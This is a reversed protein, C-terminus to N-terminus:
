PNVKHNVTYITMMRAGCDSIEQVTGGPLAQQIFVLENVREPIFFFASNRDPNIFTPPGTLPDRVDTVPVGGSLYDMSDYVGYFVVPAGFLYGQYTMGLQGLKSGFFSAFRTPRNEYLCNPAYDVFYAKLNLFALGGICVSMMVTRTTAPRWDTVLAAAGDILRDAAIAAFLCVVPFMMIIRYGSDAPGIVLAGGVVVSSWFWGQLLLHRPNWVHLLSYILGLVYLAGSLLDLMPLPSGYGATAPYYNVTLLAQRLLDLMIIGASQGRNKVENALWGSQIVGMQNVRAMFDDPHQYAWLAMPGSIVLLGGVFALLNIRNDTVMKRDVFWLCVLYVLVLPILLRSGMYIYLHFGMMLGSAALRPASRNELGSLLLYLSIVALFADQISTAVIIRSFHVHFHSVALLAAALLAVRVNFFRRGFVYLVPVSLTGSLASMFRLGLANNGFVRIMGAIAFLYLTSQGYVTAMMNHIEGRAISAAIKGVVGEDGSIINPIQGLDAFRIVGAVVTLAVVSFVEARHRQFWDALNLRQPRVFVAAYCVAGAVWLGFVDLFSNEGSKASLLRVANYALAFSLLILVARVPERRVREVWGSVALAAWQRASGARGGLNLAEQGNILAVFFLVGGAFYLLGDQWVAGAQSLVVQGMLALGFAALALALNRRSKPKPTEPPTQPEPPWPALPVEMPALALNKTETATM